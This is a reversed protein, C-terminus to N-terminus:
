GACMCVCVCVCVCVYMCVCMYIYICVYQPSASHRPSFVVIPNFKPTRIANVNRIVKHLLGVVFLVFPICSYFFAM